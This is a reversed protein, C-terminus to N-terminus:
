LQFPGSAVLIDSVVDLLVRALNDGGCLLSFFLVRKILSQSLELLPVVSQPAPVERDLCLDPCM